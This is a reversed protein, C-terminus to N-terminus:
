GRDGAQPRDDAAADQQAADIGELDDVGRDFDRSSASAVRHDMRRFVLSVERLSSFLIRHVVMDDVLDFEDYLLEEAPALCIAALSRVDSKGLSVDRYTLELDYYGVQVDGCRLLMVLQSGRGYCVRQIRGDHMSVTRIFDLVRIPLGRGIAQLHTQYAALAEEEADGKMWAPTFFLM